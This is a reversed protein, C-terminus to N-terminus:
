GKLVQVVKYTEDYCIGYGVQKYHPDLLNKNHAESNQWGNVVAKADSYGWALNEGAYKYKFPYQQWVLKYEFNEHSFYHNKVMDDCKAQAIKNLEKTQDLGPLDYSARYMDVEDDLSGTFAKNTKGISNIGVIFCGTAIILSLVTISIILKKM